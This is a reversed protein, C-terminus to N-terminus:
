AGSRVLHLNQPNLYVLWLEIIQCQDFSAADIPSNCSENLRFHFRANQTLLPKWSKKVKPKELYAEYGRYLNM